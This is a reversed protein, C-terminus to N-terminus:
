KVYMIFLCFSYVFINNWDENNMLYSCLSILYFCNLFIDNSEQQIIYKIVFFCQFIILIYLQYYKEIKRFIKQEYIDKCYILLNYEPILYKNHVIIELKNLGM